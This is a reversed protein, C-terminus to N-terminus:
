NQNGNKKPLSGGLMLSQNEVYDIWDNSLIENFCNQAVFEAIWEVSAKKQIYNVLHDCDTVWPLLNRCKETLLKQDNGISDSELLDWDGL